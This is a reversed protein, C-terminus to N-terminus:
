CSISGPMSAYKCSDILYGILSVFVMMLGCSFLTIGIVPAIWILSPYATWAFIFLGMPLIISGVMANRLRSEPEIAKGAKTAAVSQRVYGKNDVGAALVALLVGVAVGVFPLGAPGPRWGRKEEFVIPVAAFFMYLTAFIISVYIASLLVIPERALLIWPRTFSIRLAQPLTNIPKGADFRSVYVSGTMKSLANARFRLIVPAYTERIVLLAIIWATGSVIANVGLIWRLGKEQAVFGGVIPGSREDTELKWRCADGESVLHPGLFLVHRLYLWSQDM